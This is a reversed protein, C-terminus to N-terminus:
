VQRYHLRVYLSQAAVGLLLGSCLLGLATLLHGVPVAGRSCLPSREAHAPPAPTSGVFVSCFRTSRLHRVTATWGDRTPSIAFGVFTDVPDPPDFDTPLAAAYRGSRRWEQDQAEVLSRLVRRMQVTQIWDAGHGEWFMIAALAFLGASTGLTARMLLRHPSRRARGLLAFGTGSVATALWFWGPALGGRSQAQLSAVVLLTLGLGAVLGGTRALWGVWWPWAAHPDFRAVLACVVVTVAGVLGIVPRPVDGSPLAAALLMLSLAGLGAAALALRDAWRPWVAGTHPTQASEPETM